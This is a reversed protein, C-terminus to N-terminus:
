IKVDEQPDEDGNFSRGRFILSAVVEIIEGLVKVEVKPAVWNRGIM